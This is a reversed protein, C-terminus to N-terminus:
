ARQRSVPFRHNRHLPCAATLVHELSPVAHSTRELSEETPAPMGRPEALDQLLFEIREVSGAALVLLEASNRPDRLAELAAWIALNLEDSISGLTFRDGANSFAKTANSAM